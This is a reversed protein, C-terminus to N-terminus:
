VVSTLCMDYMLYEQIPSEHKCGSDYIATMKTTGKSNPCLTLLLLAFNDLVFVSSQHHSHGVLVQVM